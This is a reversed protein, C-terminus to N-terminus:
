LTPQFGDLQVRVTFAWGACGGQPRLAAAPDMWVERRTGDPSPSFIAGTRKAHILYNTVAWLDGNTETSAKNWQEVTPPSKGDSAIPVCRLITAVLTAVLVVGTLQIRHGTAPYPSVPLTDLDDVSAVHVSLQPCCDWDPNGPSIFARAISGGPSQALAARVAALYEDALENLDNVAAM